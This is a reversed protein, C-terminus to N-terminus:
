SPRRGSRQGPAADCLAVIRDLHEQLTMGGARGREPDSGGLARDHVYELLGIYAANLADLLEGEAEFQLDAIEAETINEGGLARMLLGVLEKVDRM